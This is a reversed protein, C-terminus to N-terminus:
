IHTRHTDVYRTLYNNPPKFTTAIAVKAEGLANEVRRFARRDSHIEKGRLQLFSTM